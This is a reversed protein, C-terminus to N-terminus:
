ILTCLQCVIVVTPSVEAARRQLSPEPGGTGEGGEWPPAPISWKWAKAPTGLWVGQTGIDPSGEMSVSM